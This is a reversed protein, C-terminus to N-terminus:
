DNKDFILPIARPRGREANSALHKKFVDHLVPRDIRNESMLNTM